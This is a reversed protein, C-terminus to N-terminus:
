VITREEADRLFLQVVGQQHLLRLVCLREFPDACPLSKVKKPRATLSRILAASSSAIPLELRQSDRKFVALESNGECWCTVGCMLRVRNEDSVAPWLERSMAKQTARDQGENTRQMRGEFAELVSEASLNSAWHKLIDQINVDLSANDLSGGPGALQTECLKRIEPPTDRSHLNQMLHKVLQVGWCYDSTPMTVTIHLSPEASTSAEHLFGRPIYLVDGAQMDFSMIPEGVAEPPVPDDKGVMEETYPLMTPANLITWHKTGWVQLLFVDQDDNHMRVAFSDPPTLYVVAFVHHFYEDALAKCLEYVAPQYREAQNVIISAGDLYAVLFNEENHPCGKKFMKVNSGARNILDAIHGASIAEPLRNANSGNGSRHHLPWREWHKEWFEPTLIVESFSKAIEAGSIIKERPEDMGFEVLGGDGLRL